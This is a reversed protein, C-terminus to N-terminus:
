FVTLPGQRNLIRLLSASYQEARPRDWGDYEHKRANLHAAHFRPVGFENNVEGWGEVLRDWQEPRAFIGGIVYTTPQHKGGKANGPPSGDYSLDCYFRWKTM